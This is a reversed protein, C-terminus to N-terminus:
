IGGNITLLTMERIMETKDWIATINKQSKMLLFSITAKDFYQLKTWLIITYIYWKNKVSSRKPVSKVKTMDM